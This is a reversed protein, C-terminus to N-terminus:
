RGFVNVSVFPPKKDLFTKLAKLMALHDRLDTELGERKMEVIIGIEEV